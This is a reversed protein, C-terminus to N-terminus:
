PRDLFLSGLESEGTALLKVHTGGVDVVLVNM